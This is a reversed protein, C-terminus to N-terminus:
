IGTFPDVSMNLPMRVTFLGRNETIFYNNADGTEDNCLVVERIVVFEVGLCVHNM